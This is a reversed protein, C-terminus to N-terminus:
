IFVYINHEQGEKVYAEFQSSSEKQKFSLAWLWTAKNQFVICLRTKFYMFFHM